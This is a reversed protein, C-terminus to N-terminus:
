CLRDQIENGLRTIRDLRTSIRDQFVKLQGIIDTLSEGSRPLRAGEIKCMVRTTSLGLVHREMKDCASLIRAAEEQVLTVAAAATERYHMVLNRLIERETALDTHGLQRREFTLQNDCANLLRSLGDIFLTEIVSAKINSFNSDKGIVHTEFWDFMDRSMMGYNKSLTSIPGGTPEMRSAIVRLNHPVTRMANFDEILGETETRLAEAHQMTDRLAHTRADPHRGLGQDRAVLERSIADAAFAAYDAYGQDQLRDLLHRASDEPTLNESEERQRLAAYEAEITQFLPSSPKFRASLYGTGNPMVVAFVWYHLGDKAQNKVYAGVPQGQQITTWLLWFVGRPMGPHRIIKHPAGILEDWDFHAVRRFVYNGSEIVGRHDTRSFFVEDLDFPAEGHSPRFENRKEQYSM